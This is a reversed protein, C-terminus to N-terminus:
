AAAVPRRSRSACVAFALLWVGFLAAGLQNNMPGGPAIFGSRGFVTITEIAQEAFVLATYLGFWRPLAADGRLVAVATAGLMPTTAGTLVPGFFAAVDLLTRATAPAVADAHLALGAWLWLWVAVEAAFAIGGVLFVDRHPAPLHGRLLGILVAFLFGAVTIAWVFARVADGNARFWAVVDGGSATASPQSPLALATAFYLVAFAIGSWLLVRRAPM